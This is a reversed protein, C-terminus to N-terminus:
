IISGYEKKFEEFSLLNKDKDSIIIEDVLHTPWEINLTPDNWTIGSDYEGYFRGDCKYSVISIESLVLYGHSFGKPIFLEKHNAESLYFGKWQGFTDSDKRLDVVVDYVEGYVVRILKHQPKIVQFHNARIVGKKSQTYFCEQLDTEIGNKAFVDKEFDKTLYGRNDSAFFVEIEKLDKLETDRFNFKQIM